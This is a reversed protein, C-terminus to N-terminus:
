EATPQNITMSQVALRGPGTFQNLYM